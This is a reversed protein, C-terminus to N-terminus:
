GILENEVNVWLEKVIRPEVKNEKDNGRSESRVGTGKRDHTLSKREYEGKNSVGIRFILRTSM